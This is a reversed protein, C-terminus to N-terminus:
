SSWRGRLDQLRLTGGDLLPLTFPPAPKGILPSPIERPNRTFGYALLGIIAAVIAAPILLRKWM